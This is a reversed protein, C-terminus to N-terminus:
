LKGDNLDTLVSCIRDVVSPWIVEKQAFCLRFSGIGRPGFQYGPNVIVGADKALATAVEQDSRNIRSVDPFMYSTGQAKVISVFDLSNLKDYALDRLSQYQEIRNKLFDVDDRLWPSLLHQAYAPARLATVSQIDEVRQMIHQPGVACGIRFGSMQETKSPGLLTVTREKMGPEAILHYFAAGDYVLRSYLQDAVVYLGYTDAIEAIRVVTEKSYIAGTPNNPHSLVLLRLGDKALDELYDLDLAPGNAGLKLPIHSVSADYFRLMREISLYEPDPLGVKMGPEILAGLTEFLAAQTGPTLVVDSHHDVDVSLFRSVNDAVNQLVEPDGRYPTYSEGTETADLLVDTVWDPPPYAKTDAYTLNLLDDGSSFIEFEREAQGVSTGILPAREPLHM